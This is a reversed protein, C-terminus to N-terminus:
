RRRSSWFSFITKRWCFKSNLSRTSLNRVYTTILREFFNWLSIKRIRRRTQLVNLLTVFAITFMSSKLTWSFLSPVTSRVFVSRYRCRTSLFSLEMMSTESTKLNTSWFISCNSSKNLSNLTRSVWAESAKTNVDSNPFGCINIQSTIILRM